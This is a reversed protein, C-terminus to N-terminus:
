ARSLSRLRPGEGVETSKPDDNGPRGKEAPALGELDFGFEAVDWVGPDSPTPASHDLEFWVMKGSPTLETGWARSLKEVLVLGRGTASMKSYHKRTPLRVNGDHVEIRVREEGGQVVVQVTTGAHLIANAVLESVLLTAVEALHEYSLDSLARDVFQRARSASAPEAPFDTRVEHPPM